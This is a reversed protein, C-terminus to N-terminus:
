IFLKVSYYSIVSILTTLVVGWIIDVITVVLPWNKLTAHNTLDYTGYAILGLLSGYLLVKTLSGFELGPKVVFFLIGFSYLLYFIIAPLWSVNGMLHGLNNQYFSKMFVGLWLLDGAILLVLIIPYIKILM